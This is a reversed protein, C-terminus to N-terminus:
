FSDNNRAQDRIETSKKKEESMYRKLEDPLKDVNKSCFLHIGLIITMIVFIFQITNLIFRSAEKDIVSATFHIGTLLFGSIALLICYIFINPALKSRLDDVEKKKQEVFIFSSSAALFPLAFTYGSGSDLIKLLEVSISTKSQFIAGLILPLWLAFTGLFIDSLWFVRSEEKAYEFVQFLSIKKNSVSSSNTSDM